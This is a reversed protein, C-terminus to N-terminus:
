FGQLHCRCPCFMDIKPTRPLASNWLINRFYPTRISFPLTRYVKFKYPLTPCFQAHVSCTVTHKIFWRCFIGYTQHFNRINSSLYRTNSLGDAFLVTHKIFWRCYVSYTQHFTGSPASQALFFPRKLIHISCTRRFPCARIKAGLPSCQESNKNAGSSSGQGNRRV